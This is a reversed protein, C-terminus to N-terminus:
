EAAKLYGQPDDRFKERMAIDQRRVDGEAEALTGMKVGRSYAKAAEGFIPAREVQVEGDPGRTVAKMGAQEAFPEAVQEATQGAKDLAHALEFYPSAVQAPSVHSVPATSVHIGGEPFSPLQGTDSM